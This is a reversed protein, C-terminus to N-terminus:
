VIIPSQLRKEEEDMELSEQTLECPMCLWSACCDNFANGPIGYRSRVNSRSFMQLVWGSAFCTTLACHFWCDPACDDGGTPHASGHEQLHRYRTVNQSYAICPCWCAICCTECDHTCSGLLSHSFNQRSQGAGIGVVMPKTEGPQQSTTRATATTATTPSPAHRGAHTQEKSQRIPAEPEAVVPRPMPPDLSRRELAEPKPVYPSPQPMPPSPSRRPREAQQPIVPQPMAPDPQPMPPASPSHTHLPEHTQTTAM